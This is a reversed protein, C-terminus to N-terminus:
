KPTANIFTSPRTTRNHIAFLESTPNELTNAANQALQAALTATPM